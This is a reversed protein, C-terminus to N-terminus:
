IKKQLILIAIIFYTKRMKKILEMKNIRYKLFIIKVKYLVKLKIINKSKNKFTLLNILM